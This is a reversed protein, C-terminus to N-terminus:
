KDVLILEGGLRSGNESQIRWFYVGSSVRQNASDKGDWVVQFKGSTVLNNASPSEYTQSL